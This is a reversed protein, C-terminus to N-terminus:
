IGFWKKLAEWFLLKEGPNSALFALPKSIFTNGYSTQTPEYLTNVGLAPKFEEGFVILKDSKAKLEEISRALTVTVPDVGLGKLTKNLNELELQDFSGLVTVPATVENEESISEVNDRDSDTKEPVPEKVKGRVDYLEETIFQHLHRDEIM